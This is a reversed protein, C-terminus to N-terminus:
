VKFRHQKMETKNQLITKKINVRFLGKAALWERPVFGVHPLAFTAGPCSLSFAYMIKFPFKRQKGDELAVKATWRSHSAAFVSTSQKPALSLPCFCYVIDSECIPRLFYRMSQMSLICFTGLYVKYVCQFNNLWFNM